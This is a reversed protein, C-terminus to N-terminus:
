GVSQLAALARALAEATLREAPDHSLARAVMDSLAAPVGLDRLPVIRGAIIQAILGFLEATRQWPARGLVMEYLIVGVSYVDSAEGYDSHALREPAM